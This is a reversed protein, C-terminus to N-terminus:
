ARSSSKRKWAALGSLSVGLLLLTGGADPVSVGDTEFNYTTSTGGAFSLTVNDAFAHYGPGASSGVGVSIGSIYADPSYIGMWDFISNGDYFGSSGIGSEYIYFNDNVGTSYWTGGVAPNNGNYANEWILESRQSGDWIHLRLAPSYSAAAGAISGMSDSAVMWDFTFGSLSSLLGINSSPSYFNGLGVYRTRDGHMELSGNGSRPATDTISSSGGGSNEGPPSVWSPDSPLVTVTSASVTQIASFVAIGFISLIPKKM